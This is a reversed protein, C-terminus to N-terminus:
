IAKDLVRGRTVLGIPKWSDLCCRVRWTYIESGHLIDIVYVM